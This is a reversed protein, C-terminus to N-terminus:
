SSGGRLRPIRGGLISEASRPCLWGSVLVFAVSGLLALVLRHFPPFGRLIHLAFVHVAYVGFTCALLAEGWKSTKVARGKFVGDYLFWLAAMVLIDCGNRVLVEYAGTVQCCCCRVVVAVVFLPVALIWSLKYMDRTRNELLVPELAYGLVLWFPSAPMAVIWNIRSAAWFVACYVCVSILRRWKRLGVLRMLGELALLVSMSVVLQRVFWFVGLGTPMATTIGYAHWVDGSGLTIWGLTVWFVYPVVLTLFKKRVIEVASNREISVSFLCGSVCLFFPVAWQTLLRVIVNTSLFTSHIAVIMAVALFQLRRIKLGVYSEVVQM